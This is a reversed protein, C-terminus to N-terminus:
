KEIESKKIKVAAGQALKDCLNNYKDSAHGKVWEFEIDLGRLLSDLEEWLDVNAKRKWGKTLTNVVLSSDSHVLIKEDQKDNKYIWELAIILAKMEMRNNTTSIEGGSIKVLNEKNIIVVGYGGPGPNGLCSGDTYIQM